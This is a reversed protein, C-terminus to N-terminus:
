QRAVTTTAKLGAARASGEFPQYQPEVKPLVDTLVWRIRDIAQQLEGAARENEIRGISFALGQLTNRVQDNVENLTELRRQMQRERQKEHNLFLSTVGFALLGSLLNSIALAAFPGHQGLVFWDMIGGFLLMLVGALVSLLWVM